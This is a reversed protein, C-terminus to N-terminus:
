HSKLSNSIRTRVRRNTAAARREAESPQTVPPLHAEEYVADLTEPVHKVRKRLEPPTTKRLKRRAVHPETYRYPEQNTLLHWVVVVLKRALATVAVNHGRKRRVRWYTATLPSSSKALVQASEVALARASNSGAKTIRGHHCSGASQSVRPVLGFYSALKDPTEFRSIDGIAAILGIAATVGVGPITMLLRASTEIRAHALLEEDVADVRDDIDELLTLSNQLLFDEAAPLELTRMWQRARQSFPDKHPNRVLRRNLVAHISNKIATRQKVLLRRHSVLQRLAWTTEDPMQVEPLFDARLLRALTYADVKDTKIKAHAIAKVQLSNAVVVKRVHRSIIDHLAWTHFTAELVVKDTPRLGKAFAEVEPASAGVRYEKRKTGKQPLACVQIFEKHVDLGYNM